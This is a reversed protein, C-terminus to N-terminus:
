PQIHFTKASSLGSVVDKLCVTCTGEPDNLAPVFRVTEGASIRREDLIKGSPAKVTLIGTNDLNETRIELAGGKRVSDFSLVPAPATFKRDSCAFVQGEAPVLVTEFEAIKGLCKGNKLIDYVFMPKPLKVKRVLSGGSAAATDAGGEAGVASRRKAKKQIPPALLTVYSTDGHRFITTQYPKNKGDTVLAFPEVGASRLLRLMGKQVGEGEGKRIREDIGTLYDDLCVAKGKGYTEVHLKEFKGFVDALRSKELFKGHETMIAPNYDALLTGGNRVFKRVSKCEKESMAQSYPLILVKTGEPVGRELEEPSLFEYGIGLSELVGGFEDHSTKWTTRDPNVTGAHLSNNSYHVRVADKGLKSNMLLKGVGSKKIKNIQEAAETFQSLMRLDPGAICATSFASSTIPDGSYWYFAGGLGSFLYRWAPWRVYEDGMETEYTGFWASKITNTKPLYQNVAHVDRRDFYPACFEFHPLMKYLNFGTFSNFPYVLGEIGCRAEPDVSRIMAKRVRHWDIFQEEMFLRFDVWMPCLNKEVAKEFPLATVEDFSKYGTGYEQNLAGIKGYVRKLYERFRRQCDPCFCNETGITMSVFNEDGMNYFLVGIGKAGNAIAINNAGNAIAINDVPTKLPRNDRGYFVGEKQYKEWLGFPCHGTQNIYHTGALRDIYIAYTMGARKLARPVFKYGCEPGWGVTADMANDVGYRNMEGLWVAAPRSNSYAYTWMGFSFDDVKRTTDFYIYERAEDVLREGRFAKVTLVAFKSKSYLIKASFTGSGNPLEKKWLLRNGDDTLALETRTGAPAAVTGSIVEDPAFGDKPLTVSVTESSAPIPASQYDLIKGGADALKVDLMRASAPLAPLEIKAHKKGQTEKKFIVNGFKDAAEWLFKSGAPPENKLEVSGDGSVKVITLREPQTFTWVCKGLFAFYYDYWLPDDSEFPALNEVVLSMHTNYNFGPYVIKVIKGKGLDAAEVKVGKLLPVSDSPFDIRVPSFKMGSVNQDAFKDALLFLVAGSKVHDLFKTRVEPPLKEFRFKGFIVVGCEPLEKGLIKDLEEKYENEFMAGGYCKGGKEFPNFKDMKWVPLLRYQFDFRQKFEIVERQGIGWGLIMATETKGAAPVAFSRHPTVLSEDMRRWPIEGDVSWGSVSVAALGALICSLTWKKM